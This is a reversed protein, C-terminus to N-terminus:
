FLEARLATFTDADTRALFTHGANRVAAFVVDRGRGGLLAGAFLGVPGALLAGAAGWGVASGVKVANHQAAVEVSSFFESVKMRHAPRPHDKPRLTVRGAAYTGVGTFDGGLVKIKGM